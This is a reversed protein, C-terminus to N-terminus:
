NEASGWATNESAKREAAANATAEEARRTAALRENALVRANTSAIIGARASADRTERVLESSRRSKLTRARATKSAESRRRPSAAVVWADTASRWTSFASAVERRRLRAAVRSLLAARRAADFDNRSSLPRRSLRRRGGNPGRRGKEGRRQFRRPGSESRPRSSSARWEGRPSEYSRTADIRKRRPPTERRTSPTSGRTLRRRARRNAFRAVVPAFARATRGDAVRGGVARVRRRARSRPRSSARRSAPEVRRAGERSVGRARDGTAWSPTGVAFRSPSARTENAGFGGDRGRLGRVGRAGRPRHDERHGAGGQRM